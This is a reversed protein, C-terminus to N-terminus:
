EDQMNIVERNEFAHSKVVTAWLEFSVLRKDVNNEKFLFCCFTGCLLLSEQVASAFQRTIFYRCHRMLLSPLFFSFQIKLVKM